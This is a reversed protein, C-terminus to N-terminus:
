VFALGTTCHRGVGCHQRGPPDYDYREIHALLEPRVPPRPTWQTTDPHSRTWRSVIEHLESVAM